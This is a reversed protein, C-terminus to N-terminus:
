PKKPESLEPLLTKSQNKSLSFDDGPNSPTCFNSLSWTEESSESSGGLQQARGTTVSVLMATAIPMLSKRKTFSNICLTCSPRSYMLTMSILMLVLDFPMCQYSAHVSCFSLDGTYRNKNRFNHNPMLYNVQSTDSCQSLFLVKM